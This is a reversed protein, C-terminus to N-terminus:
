PPQGAGGSTSWGEQRRRRVEEELQTLRSAVIALKRDTNAMAFGAASKIQNALSQMLSEQTQGFVKAAKAVLWRQEDGLLAKLTSMGSDQNEKRAMRLDERAKHLELVVPSRALRGGKKKGSLFTFESFNEEVGELTTPYLVTAPIFL